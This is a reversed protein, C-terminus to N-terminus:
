SLFDIRESKKKKLIQLDVDHVFEWNEREDGAGAGGGSAHERLADALVV